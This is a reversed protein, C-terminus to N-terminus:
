DAKAVRIMYAAFSLLEFATFDGELHIQQAGRQYDVIWFKDYLGGSNTVIRDIRKCATELHEAEDSTEILETLRM